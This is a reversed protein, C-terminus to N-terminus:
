DVCIKPKALAVFKPQLDWLTHHPHEKNYWDKLLRAKSRSQCPVTFEVIDPRLNLEGAEMAAIVMRMDGHNPVQPYLRALIKAVEPDSECCGIVEVPLNYKEVAQMSSGVGACVSYMTHKKLKRGVEDVFILDGNNDFRIKDRELEGDDPCYNDVLPWLRARSIIQWVMASALVGNSTM